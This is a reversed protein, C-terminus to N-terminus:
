RSKQRCDGPKGWSAKRVDDPEASTSRRAEPTRALEVTRWFLRWTGPTFREIGLRKRWSSVTDHSVGWHYRVAALSETKLPKVLDGCVIFPHGVGAAQPWPIPGDSYSDVKLRGRIVCRLIGSKPVRPPGYPGGILKVSEPSFTKKLSKGMVCGCFAKGNYRETRGIL